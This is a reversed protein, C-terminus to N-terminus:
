RSVTVIPQIAQAVFVPDNNMVPFPVPLHVEMKVKVTVTENPVYNVNEIVMSRVYDSRKFNELAKTAATQAAGQDPQNAAARAADKAFNDVLQNSLAMVYMDFLFLVLPVLVFLGATIELMSQGCSKKRHKTRYASM